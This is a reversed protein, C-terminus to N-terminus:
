TTDKKQAIIEQTQNPRKIPSTFNIEKKKDTLRDAMDYAQELGKANLEIDFKQM